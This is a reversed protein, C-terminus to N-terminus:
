MNTVPIPTKLFGLCLPSWPPSSRTLGQRGTSAHHWTHTCVHGCVGVDVVCEWVWMGGGVCLPRRVCTPRFSPLPGAPDGSRGSTESLHQM